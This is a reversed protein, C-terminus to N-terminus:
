HVDLVDYHPNELLGPTPFSNVLLNKRLSIFSKDETSIFNADTSVKSKESGYIKVDTIKEGGINAFNGYTSRPFYAIDLSEKLKNKNMIMPVHIDYDIPDKIGVSVLQKYTLELLKIYKSAMGLEKYREIKDILLGGHLTPVISIKNLAFFDDNMLVFNDSIELHESAVRICNRINEFKGGVDKVYVLDGIYWKPRNGILWVRGEPMNKEISRLSYRLEENEGDRCIYVYDM